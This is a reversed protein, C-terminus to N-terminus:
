KCLGILSMRRRLSEWPKGDCIFCMSQAAGSLGMAQFAVEGGDNGAM